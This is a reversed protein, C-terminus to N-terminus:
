KILKPISAKNKDPRDKIRPWKGKGIFTTISRIKTFADTEEHVQVQSHLNLISMFALLGIIKRM